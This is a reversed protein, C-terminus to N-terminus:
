ELPIQLWASLGLILVWGAAMMLPFYLLGILFPPSVRVTRRFFFFGAALGAVYVPIFVVVAKPTLSMTAILAAIVLLPIGLGLLLDSTSRPM